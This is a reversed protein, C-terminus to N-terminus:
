FPSYPFYGAMKFIELVPRTAKIYSPLWDSSVKSLTRSCDSERPALWDATLHRQGLKHVTHCDCECHGLSCILKMLVIRRGMRCSKHLSKQCLIVDGLDTLGGVGSKAGKSKQSKGSSFDSNFPLLNTFAVIVCYVLETLLTESGGLGMPCQSNMSACYPRRQNAALNCWPSTVPEWSIWLPHISEPCGKCVKRIYLEFKPGWFMKYISLRIFTTCVYRAHIVDACTKGGAKQSFYQETDLSQNWNRWCVDQLLM